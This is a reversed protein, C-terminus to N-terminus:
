NLWGEQQSVWVALTLVQTFLWTELAEHASGNSSSSPKTLDLCTQLAEIISAKRVYIELGTKTMTAIRSKRRAQRDILFLIFEDQANDKGTNDRKEWQM